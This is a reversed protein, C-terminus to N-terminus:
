RPFRYFIKTQRRYSFSVIDYIKRLYTKIQYIRYEFHSRFEQLISKIEEVISKTSDIKKTIEILRKDISPPCEGPADLFPIEIVDTLQGITFFTGVLGGPM